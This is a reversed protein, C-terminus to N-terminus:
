KKKRFKPQPYLSHAIIADMLSPTISVWSNTQINDFYEWKVKSISINEM